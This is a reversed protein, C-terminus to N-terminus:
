ISIEEILFPRPADDRVTKGSEFHRLLALPIPPSSWVLDRFGYYFSFNNKGIRKSPYNTTTVDILRAKAVVEPRGRIKFYVNGIHLNQAKGIQANTGYYLEPMGDKLAAFANKLEEPGLPVWLAPKHDGTDKTASLDVSASQDKSM